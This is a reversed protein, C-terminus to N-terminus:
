NSIMSLFTVISDHYTKHNISKSLGSIVQIRRHYPLEKINKSLLIRIAKNLYQYLFDCPVLSSDFYEMMIDHGLYDFLNELFPSNEEEIMNKFDRLSLLNYFGYRLLSFLKGISPTKFLERVQNRIIKKFVIDEESLDKLLKCLAKLVNLHTYNIGLENGTPVPYQLIEFIERLLSREDSILQLIFQENSIIDIEEFLVILEKEMYPKEITDIHKRFSELIIQRYDEGFQNLFKNGILFVFVNEIDKTMWADLLSKKQDETLFRLFGGTM